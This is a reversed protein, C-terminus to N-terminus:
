PPPGPMAWVPRDAPVPAAGARFFEGLGGTRFNAIGADSPRPDVHCGTLAGGLVVLAIPLPRLRIRRIM